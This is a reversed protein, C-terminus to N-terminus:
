RQDNESRWFALLAPALAEREQMPLSHTAKPWLEVTADPCLRRLREAAVAGGALSRTGALDVRLPMPLSRWEQDTLMRPTPLTARYGATGNDIMVSMPTRERVDDVSVGGLEALARDKWAQPFPLQTITAWFLSSVPPRRLVMVPELLTLSAVQEPHRLAHITANAGGFSHGVSQVRELGLATITQAIWEAQDDFSNLPKTQKTLGADGIADVAYITRQGIWDPLNEAWMPAGSARGPLLLVPAGPAPATWEYARVTGFDTELELSRTPEPITRLVAQYAEVYAEQAARSRWRGLKATSTPV